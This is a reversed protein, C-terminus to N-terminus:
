SITPRCWRPEPSTAPEAVPSPAEPPRSREGFYEEPTRVDLITSASGALHSELEARTTQVPRAPTARLQDSGAAAVRQEVPPRATAVGFTLHEPDQRQPAPSSWRWFGLAPAYGYFVVVTDDDVGVQRVAGRRTGASPASQDDKLDTYVEVAGRTRHPGRQLRTTSMSRSSASTADHLHPRAVGHRRATRSSRKGHITPHEVVGAPHLHEHDDRETEAISSSGAESSKPPSPKSSRRITRVCTSASRTSSPMTPKQGLSTAVKCRISQAM